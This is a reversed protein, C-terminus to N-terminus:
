LFIVTAKKYIADERKNIIRDVNVTKGEPMTIFERIKKPNFCKSFGRLPFEMVEKYRNASYSWTNERKM